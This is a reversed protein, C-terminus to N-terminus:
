YIIWGLFVTDTTKSDSGNKVIAFFDQAMTAIFLFVHCGYVVKSNKKMHIYFIVQRLLMLILILATLKLLVIILQFDIYKGDVQALPILTFMTLLALMLDVVYIMKLSKHLSM